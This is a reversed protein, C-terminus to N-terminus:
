GGPVNLLEALEKLSARRMPRGDVPSLPAHGRLRLPFVASKFDCDHASFRYGPFPEVDDRRLRFRRAIDRHSIGLQELASGVAEVTDSFLHLDVTSHITANGSLVDGVLRPHFPALDRMVEFAAQRLGELLEPQTDGHFIRTREALAADIEANNPLASDRGMGLREAAKSKASRFDTLGEEQIIRAAEAALTLRRHDPGEARRSGPRRAGRGKKGDSSRM